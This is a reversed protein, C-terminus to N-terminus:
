IKELKENQQSYFKKKLRNQNELFYMKNTKKPKALLEEMIEKYSKKTGNLYKGRILFKELKKIYGHKVKRRRWYNVEPAIKRRIFAKINETKETKFLKEVNIEKQYPPIFYNEIITKDVNM